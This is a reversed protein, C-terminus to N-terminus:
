NLYCKLTVIVNLMLSLMPYLYQDLEGIVKYYRLGLYHGVFDMLLTNAAASLVCLMLKAM